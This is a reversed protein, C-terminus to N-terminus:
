SKSASPWALAIRNRSSSGSSRLTSAKSASAAKAAVRGALRVVLHDEAVRPEFRDRDISQGVQQVLQSTGSIGRIIVSHAWECVPMSMWGPAVIPLCKKM